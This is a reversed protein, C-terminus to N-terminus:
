TRSTPRAVEGDTLGRRFRYLNLVARPQIYAAPLWEDLGPHHGVFRCLYTRTRGEYRTHNLIREVQRDRARRVRGEDLRWQTSPRYPQLKDISLRLDVMTNYAEGPVRVAYSNENLVRVVEFPGARRLAFKTMHRVPLFQADVYVKDGVDYTIPRRNKDYQKAQQESARALNRTVQRDVDRVDSPGAPYGSPVAKDIEQRPHYGYLLYHPSFNTSAHVAENTATVIDQLKWYWRTTNNNLAARLLDIITRNQRETQGNSQAHYATSARLDINERVCFDKFEASVFYPGRDCIIAEPQRLV